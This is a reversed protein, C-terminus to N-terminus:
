TVICQMNKLSAQCFQLSFLCLHLMVFCPRSYEGHWWRSLIYIKELNQAMDALGVCIVRVCSILAGPWASIIPDFYTSHSHEKNQSIDRCGFCTKNLKINVVSKYSKLFIISQFSTGMYKGMCKGKGM